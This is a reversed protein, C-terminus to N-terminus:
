RRGCHEFPQALIADVEAQPLYQAAYSQGTLAVIRGAFARLHNRSGCTLAEYVRDLDERTAAAAAELNDVIDIEEVYGGVKLAALESVLGDELLEDYLAQM